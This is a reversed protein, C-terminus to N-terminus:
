GEPAVIPASAFNDRAWRKEEDSGAPPPTLGQVTWFEFPTEDGHIEFRYGRNAVWPAILKHVADMFLPFMESEMRRAIHDIVIRVYEDDSEGGVFFSGPAMEQFLVNVYFAPLGARRYLKTIKLSLEQRDQATYAGQPHYIQWLPM